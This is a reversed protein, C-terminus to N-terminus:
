GRRVGHVCCENDGVDHELVPCFTDGKHRWGCERCRIVGRKNTEPLKSREEHIRVKRQKDVRPNWGCKECRRRDTCEIVEQFKCVGM